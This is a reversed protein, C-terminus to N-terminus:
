AGTDPAGSDRALLAEVCRVLAVIPMPRKFRQEALTTRAPPTPPDGDGLVLIGSAGQTRAARSLAHGNADAFAEDAVLVDFRQIRLLRDAEEASAACRVEHGRRRLAFAIFNLEDVRPSAVLVVGTHVPVSRVDSHHTRKTRPLESAM